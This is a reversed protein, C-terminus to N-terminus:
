RRCPSAPLKRTPGCRGPGPPSRSSPRAFPRARQASRPGRRQSGDQPQDAALRDERGGSLGPARRGRGSRRGHPRRAAPDRPDRLVGAPGQFPERFARGPRRGALGPLGDAAPPSGARVGAASRAANRAPDDSQPRLLGPAPLGARGQGADQLHARGDRQPSQIGERVSAAAWGHRWSRSAPAPGGRQRGRPGHGHGRDDGAAHSDRARCRREQRQARNGPRPFIARPPADGVM